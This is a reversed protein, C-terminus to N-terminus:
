AKRCQGQANVRISQEDVHEVKKINEILQCLTKVDVKVNYTKVSWESEPYKKIKEKIHAIASRVVKKPVKKTSSGETTNTAVLFKPL